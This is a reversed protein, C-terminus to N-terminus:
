GLHTPELHGAGEVVFSERVDELFQGVVLLGLDHGSELQFPRRVDELRHIRVVRRVQQALHRLLVGLGEEFEHM